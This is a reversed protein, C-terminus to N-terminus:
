STFAEMNEEYSLLTFNPVDQRAYDAVRSCGIDYIGNGHIIREKVGLRSVLALGVSVTCKV